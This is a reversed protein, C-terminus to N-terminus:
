VVLKVQSRLRPLSELESNGHTLFDIIGTSIQAQRYAPSWNGQIAMIETRVMPSHIEHMRKECLIHAKLGIGPTKGIIKARQIISPIQVGAM